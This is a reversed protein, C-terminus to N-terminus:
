TAASLSPAEAAARETEEPPDPEPAPPAPRRLLMWAAIMAAVALGVAGAALALKGRSYPQEGALAGTQANVTLRYVRGRYRLATSWVPLLV